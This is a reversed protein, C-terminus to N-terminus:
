RRYHVIFEVELRMQAWHLNKGELLNGLRSFNAREPEAKRSVSHRVAPVRLYPTEAKGQSIMAINRAVFDGDILFRLSLL